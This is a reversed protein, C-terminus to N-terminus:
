VIGGVTELIREMLEVWEYEGGRGVGKVLTEGDGRRELEKWGERLERKRAYIMRQWNPVMMDPDVGVLKAMEARYDFQGEGPLRHWERAALDERGGFVRLMDEMASFLRRSEQEMNMKVKESIIGALLHCQMETLPFPVIQRPLGLFFLSELPLATSTPFMHEALPFVHQGSSIMWNGPLPYARGKNSGKNVVPPGLFHNAIEYGTAFIIHDIGSLIKGDDFVVVGETSDGLERISGCMVITDEQATPRTGKPAEQLPSTATPPTRVSRYVRRAVGVLEPSIDLASPGNGVVVVSQNRFPSPERYSMSHSIKGVAQWADIKKIDLPYFPSSNRGNAIILTNINTWTVEREDTLPPCARTTIEWSFGADGSRFPKVSTVSTSFRIYPRLQFADAYDQLYRLVISAKPYLPTSHPFPFDRFAMIPHPLNTTLSNYLPTQPEDGPNPDPLWIGGLDSRQEFAIVEWENDEWEKTALLIKLAGLGASGAGIVAIRKRESNSTPQLM